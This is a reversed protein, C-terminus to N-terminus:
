EEAKGGSLIDGDRALLAQSLEHGAFAAKRLYQEAEGSQGDAKLHLGLRYQAGLHDMEAAKGLWVAATQDDGQMQYFRYLEYAADANGARVGRELWSVGEASDGKVGMGGLYMRGIALMADPDNHRAAALYLSAARRSDLVGRRADVLFDALSRMAKADGRAVAKKFLREAGVQDVPTGIGYAKSKALEVLAPVYGSAAAEELLDVAEKPNSQGNVGARLMRALGVASHRDGSNRALAERYLAEAEAPQAPGGVGKRYADALVARATPWNKEVLGQLIGRGRAQRAPNPDALLFSAQLEAGHLDGIAILEELIEMAAAKDEEAGRANLFAALAMKNDSTRAAQTLAAIQSRADSEALEEEAMEVLALKAAFQDRSAAAEIVSRIAERAVGSHWLDVLRTLVGPESRVALEAYLGVAREVDPGTGSEVLLDALALKASDSGQAAAKELYIRAATPDRLTVIGANYIQGLSLLAEVSGRRSALEYWALGSEIDAQEASETLLEGLNVMAELVVRTHSNREILRQYLRRAKAPDREVGAGTRYSAALLRTADIDDRAVAAKLQEIAEQATEPAFSGINRLVLRGFYFASREAGLDGAHLIVRAAVQISVPGQGSAGIDAGFSLLDRAGLREDAIATTLEALDPNGAVIADRAAGLFQSRADGIERGHGLWTEADEPSVGIEHDFLGDKILAVAAEVSGASASSQLWRLAETPNYAPSSSLRYIKALREASRISGREAAQLYYKAAVGTDQPVFIGDRYLDGLTIVASVEDVKLVVEALLQKRGSEVATKGEETELGLLMALDFYAKTQGLRIAKRFLLEASAREDADLSKALHQALQYTADADGEDAANRLLRLGKTTDRPGGRGELLLEALKTAADTALPGGLAIVKELLARARVYDHALLPNSASFPTGAILRRADALVAKQYTVNPDKSVRVVSVSGGNEAALLVSGPAAFALALLIALVSALGSRIARIM